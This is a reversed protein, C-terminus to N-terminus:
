KKQNEGFRNAWFTDCDFKPIQTFCILLDSKYKGATMSYTTPSKSNLTGLVRHTQTRHWINEQNGKQKGKSTYM